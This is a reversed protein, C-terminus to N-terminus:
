SQETSFKNQHGKKDRNWQSFSRRLRDRGPIIPWECSPCIKSPWPCTWSLRQWDHTTPSVRLRRVNTSTPQSWPWCYGVDPETYPRYRYKRNSLFTAAGALDGVPRPAGSCLCTSASQSISSRTDLYKQTKDM